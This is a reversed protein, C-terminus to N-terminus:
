GGGALTVIEIRAGDDIPTSAFSERPILQGNIEVAVARSRVQMQELLTSVSMGPPVSELRDNITIAIAAATTSV